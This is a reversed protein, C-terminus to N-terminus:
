AASSMDSQDSSQSTSAPKTPGDSSPNLLSMLYPKMVSMARRHKASPYYPGYQERAYRKQFHDIIQVAKQLDGRRALLSVLRLYAPVLLPRHREEKAQDLVFSYHAIAQQPNTSENLIASLMRLSVRDMQAHPSLEWQGHLFPQLEKPSLQLRGDKGLAQARRIIDNAELWGGFFGILVGNCKEPSNCPAELPSFDKQRIRQPLFVTWQSKKCSSCTDNEPTAYLYMLIGSPNFIDVAQSLGVSVRNQHHRWILLLGLIACLPPVIGPIIITDMYFGKKKGQWILLHLGKTM